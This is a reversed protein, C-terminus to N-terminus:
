KSITKIESDSFLTIFVFQGDLGEKSGSIDLFTRYSKLYALSHPLPSYIQISSPKVTQHINYLVTPLIFFLWM